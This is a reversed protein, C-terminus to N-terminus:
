PHSPSEARLYHQSETRRTSAKPNQHPGARESMCHACSRLATLMSLHTPTTPKVEIEELWHKRQGPFSKRQKSTKKLLHRSPHTFKWAVSSYTVPSCKLFFIM